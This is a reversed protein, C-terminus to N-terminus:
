RGITYNIITTQNDTVNFCYGWLWIGKTESAKLRKIIIQKSTNLTINNPNIYNASTAYITFGTPLTQNINIKVDYIVGTGENTVEFIPTVYDQGDPETRDQYPQFCKMTVNNIGTPLDIDLTCNVLTINLISTWNTQSTNSVSANVYYTGYSLNTFNVFFYTNNTTNTKNNVLDFTSNYLYITINKINTITTDNYSVNVLIYDECYTGNSTYNVFYISETTDPTMIMSTYIAFVLLGITLTAIIKDRM